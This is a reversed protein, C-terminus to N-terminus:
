MKQLLLEPSGFSLKAVGFEKALFKLDARKYIPLVVLFIRESKRDILFLNKGIMGPVLEHFHEAQECTFVAPHSYPTYTINHSQLFQEVPNM